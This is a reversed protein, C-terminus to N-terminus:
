LVRMVIKTTMEFGSGTMRAGGIGPINPVFIPQYDYVASVFVDDANEMDVEVDDVAMGTLVTKGGAAIKGYVALNQTREIKEDTLQIVGPGAGAESSIYRAADRVTQTLKNYTLIANAMEAVALMIFLVVPLIILCEVVAVGRQKSHGVSKRNLRLM